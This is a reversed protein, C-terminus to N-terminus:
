IIAKTYGCFKATGGEINFCPITKCKKFDCTKVLVNEIYGIKHSACFRAPKIGEYNYSAGVSCGDFECFFLIIM